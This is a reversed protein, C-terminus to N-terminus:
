ERMDWPVASANDAIKEFAATPAIVLGPAIESSPYHECLSKFGRSDKKSPRSSVKVEIPFLTGDRELLFDVEGGSHSRWHFMQPKRDMRSIMKRLEACVATEFIAGLLPHGSLAKPSTIRNLHCLLGADAFYGKPKSSIRKIANSHYAPIEFWQFTGKLVGIWRKASQPTVGIERGLQSFNIEQASLASALQVFRGFQQWDDVALMLRVDREIYTRLYSAFFEDIVSEPLACAEPLAGRWLLEYLTRDLSLRHRARNEVFAFPDDLYDALWPRTGDCEAIEALSFGELDIFAARGALSDAISKMVSWQQSGTLIYLGKENRSDVLRKISSVVEPCYQIEDLVLPTPHNALFLEPDVRANGVDVVPDFVVIDWDSFQHKLLTSKGVQRAGSVVVVPFHKVLLELKASLHRKKYRM